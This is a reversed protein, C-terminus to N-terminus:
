GYIADWRLILAVIASVLIVIAYIVALLRARRWLRVAWPQRLFLFPLTALGGALLLLVLARVTCRDYTSPPFAPLRAPRGPAISAVHGLYGEGQQDDGDQENGVRFSQLRDDVADALQCGPQGLLRGAM